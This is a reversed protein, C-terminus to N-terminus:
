GNTGSLINNQLYNINNQKILLSLQFLEGVDEGPHHSHLVLDSDEVIMM